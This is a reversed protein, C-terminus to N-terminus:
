FISPVIGGDVSWAAGTVASARESCLFVIVDAQEDTTLLRGIPVKADQRELMEDRSIGNAAAHQDLLGGEDLWLPGATPGPTVANVLVGTGAYADAFVRSLSLQGTKGVTYAPSTLSARKGSSSAVNVIRGWGRQAMPPAFHRMLRMPGLVSLKWQRDWEADAQEALPEVTSTGACNVLVDVPGAALAAAREAVDDATVDVGTARSAGVVRVGEAELRQAVALGIGSTAGTVLATRGSIGLDM